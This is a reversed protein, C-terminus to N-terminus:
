GPREILSPVVAPHRQELPFRRGRAITLVLLLMFPVLGVLM